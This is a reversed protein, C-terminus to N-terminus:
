IDREKVNRRFHGCQPRAKGALVREPNMVWKRYSGCCISPFRWTRSPGTIRTDYILGKVPSHAIVM